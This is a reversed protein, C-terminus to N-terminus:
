VALTYEIKDGSFAANMADVHASPIVIRVTKAASLVSVDSPLKVMDAAAYFSELLNEPFSVVQDGKRPIPSFAESPVGKGLTRKVIPNVATLKARLSKKASFGSGVQCSEIM